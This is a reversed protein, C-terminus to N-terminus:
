RLTQSSFDFCGGGGRNEFFSNRQRQSTKLTEKFVPSLFTNKLHFHPNKFRRAWPRWSFAFAITVSTMINKLATLLIDKCQQKHSNLFVYGKNSVM